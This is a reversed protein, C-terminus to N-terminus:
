GNGVVRQRALLIEEWADGDCFPENLPIKVIM